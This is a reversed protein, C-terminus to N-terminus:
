ADQRFYRRVRRRSLSYVFASSIIVGAVSRLRDGTVLYSVVDGCGDIAFLTVAFWWAWKKRRLLGTAAACAAAGLALLPLGSVRGLARFATAAPKNLEWIRDLLPNPLLLSIGLIVAITSAAFLFAAVVPVTRPRQEM